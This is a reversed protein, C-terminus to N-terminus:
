MFFFNSFLSSVQDDIKDFTSLMFAYLNLLNLILIRCLFSIILAFTILELHMNYQKLDM